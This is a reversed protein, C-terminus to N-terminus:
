RLSQEPADDLCDPADHGADNVAYGVPRAVLPPPDDALIASVVEAPADPDLWAAEATADGLIVPQRDHIEAARGTATRTLITATLLPPLAGDAPKWAAWLGAFAFPGHDERTLHFPQKRTQGPRRQWEYFGDAPILCRRRRLADRFAPKEAATESRANIMRYGIKPDKAWHPVLGWRLLTGREGAPQPATIAIIEQGPCINYRPGAVISESLGFRAQLQQSPGALTYRGCV